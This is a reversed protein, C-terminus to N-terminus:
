YYGHMCMVTQRMRERLHPPEVLEAKEGYRLLQQIIRFENYATARVLVRRQERGKEDLYVEERELTQTLWRQSLGRKAISGDIWFRFEIPRRRREMDIMNPQIKLSDTKIRDIRYEFFENMKHSYGILYFHGEMHIIYYPDINEHFIVDQKRRTPTYEFQIQQRDSIARVVIDITARHPLYDAVTSLNFYVYPKRVWRDFHRKQEPPLTAILKEILSLMEESFPNRPPQLPLPQTLDFRAYRTPDAFLNHLLALSDVESQTFLFTPRPGSGEVLSYRTPQGRAKVKKIEFGQEELFKIDREFMRDARRSAPHETPTADDIKYYFALREFVDKRTCENVSLFQLLRFIREASEHIPSGNATANDSSTQNNSDSSAYKTM